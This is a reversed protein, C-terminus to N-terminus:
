QTMPCPPMPLSFHRRAKLNWEAKVKRGMYTVTGSIPVEVQYLRIDPDSFLFPNSRYLGVFHNISKQPLPSSYILNSYYAIYSTIDHWWAWYWPGATVQSVILLFEPLFMIPGMCQWGWEWKSCMGRNLSGPLMLLEYSVDTSPSFM